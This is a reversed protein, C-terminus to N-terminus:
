GKLYIKTEYEVAEKLLFLHKKFMYSCTFYIQPTLSEIKNVKNYFYTDM